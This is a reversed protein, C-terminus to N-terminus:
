TEDRKTYKEFFSGITDQEVHIKSPPSQRVLPLFFDGITMEDENTKTSPLAFVDAITKDAPSLSRKPPLPQATSPATTTTETEATIDEEVVSEDDEIGDVYLIDGIDDNQPANNFEEFISAADALEDNEDKRWKDETM